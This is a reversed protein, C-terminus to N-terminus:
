KKTNQSLLSLWYKTKRFFPQTATDAPNYKMARFASQNAKRAWILREQNTSAQTMQKFYYHSSIEWIKPNLPLQRQIREMEKEMKENEGNKFKEKLLRLRSEALAQHIVHILSFSLFLVGLLLFLKKFIKM